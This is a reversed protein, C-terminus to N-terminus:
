VVDKTEKENLDAIMGLVAQAGKSAGPFQVLSAPKSQMKVTLTNWKERLKKASLINAKWFSDSQCWRIVQEIKLVDQKDNRILKEIDACWRIITEQRKGNNLFLNNPNNELILTALLESLGIVDSTYTINKEKKEKNVKKEKNLHLGNAFGEADKRRETQSGKQTGETYGDAYEGSQYLDYNIIKIRTTLNDKQQEIQTDMELENLYRIVKNKSWKWRDALTSLSHGLCGRPIEVKIGRVRFYSDKYNALFLLDIWAQARSFPEATWKPNDLLKRFLKIYGRHM